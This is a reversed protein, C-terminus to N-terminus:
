DHAAGRNSATSIVGRGIRMSLGIQDGRQATSNRSVRNPDVRGVVALGYKPEAEDIAHGGVIAVGAAHAVEGGGRVIEGLIGQDLLDRPFAVINLAFLPRAGM